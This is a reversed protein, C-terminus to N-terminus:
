RRSGALSEFGADLARAILDNRGQASHCGLAVGILRHGNRRASAVLNYGSDRTFGTKMGDLGRYHGLLRNHNAHVSGRYSFRRTSFYHYRHPFDRLLAKALIAMDRATTRHSPHPLGSANAFVTNRMGLTRAKSTMRSAFRSETGALAEGVLAAVDNASKTVLARIADDVRITDGPNLGLSTPPQAAAHRSARMLSNLKIKRRDLAEFLLYLTMMKTLSAPYRRVDPHRAQLARGNTTDIVLLSPQAPRANAPLVSFLTAVLTAITIFRFPKRSHTVRDSM